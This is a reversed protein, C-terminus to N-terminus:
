WSSQEKQNQGSIQVPRATPELMVGKSSRTGEPGVYPLPTPRPLTQENRQTQLEAMLSYLM